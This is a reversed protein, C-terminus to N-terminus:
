KPKIKKNDFLPRALNSHIHATKRFHNPICKSELGRSM